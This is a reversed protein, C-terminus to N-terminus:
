SHRPWPLPCNNGPTAESASLDYPLVMSSARAVQEPEIVNGIGLQHSQSQHGVRLGVFTLIVGIHHIAQHGLQHADLRAMLYLFRVHSVTREYSMPAQLM